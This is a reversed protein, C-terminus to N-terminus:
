KRSVLYQVGEPGYRESHPVNALLHFVDGTHYVREAGDKSIVLEGQLILARAEFTHTHIDMAGAERTVTVPEPFGEKALTGVFENRAM